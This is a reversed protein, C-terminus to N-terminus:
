PRLHPKEMMQLKEPMVRTDKFSIGDRVLVSPKPVTM